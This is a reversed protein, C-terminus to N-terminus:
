RICFILRRLSFLVCVRVRTGDVVVVFLCWCALSSFAMCLASSFRSYGDTNNGRRPEDQAAEAKFRWLMDGSKLEQTALVTVIIKTSGKVQATSHMNSVDSYLFRKRACAGNTLGGGCWVCGLARVFYRCKRECM